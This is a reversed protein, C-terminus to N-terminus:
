HQSAATRGAQAADSGATDFVWAMVTKTWSPATDATPATAQTAPGLLAMALALPAIAFLPRM